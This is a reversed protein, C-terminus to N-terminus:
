AIRQRPCVGGQHQAFRIPEAPTCALMLQALHCVLVMCATLGLFLARDTGQALAFEALKSTSSLLKPVSSLSDKKQFLMQGMEQLYSIPTKGRPLSSKQTLFNAITETHATLATNQVLKSCLVFASRKSPSKLFVWLDNRLHTHFPQCHPTVSHQDHCDHQSSTKTPLMPISCSIRRRPSSGGRCRCPEFSDCATKPRHRTNM